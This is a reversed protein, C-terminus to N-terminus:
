RRISLVSWEGGTFARIEEGYRTRTIGQSEENDPNDRNDQQSMLM